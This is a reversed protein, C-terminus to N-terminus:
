PFHGKNLSAWSACCRRRGPRLYKLCTRELRRCKLPPTRRRMGCAQLKTAIDRAWSNPDKLLARLERTATAVDPDVKAGGMFGAMRLTGVSQGSATMAAVVRQIRPQLIEWEDDTAGLQQKITLATLKTVNTQLQNVSDQDILGKDVLMQMVGSQDLTGDQMQQQIDMFFQQPDIGKQQMNQFIQQGFQQMQQIMAQQDASQGPQGPGQNQAMAKGSFLMGCMLVVSITFRKIM